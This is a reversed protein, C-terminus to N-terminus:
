PLIAKLFYFSLVTVNKMRKWMSEPYRHSQVSMHKTRKIAINHLLIPTMHDHFFM